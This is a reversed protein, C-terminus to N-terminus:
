GSLNHARIAKMLFGFVATNIMDLFLVDSVAEEEVACLVIVVGESGM